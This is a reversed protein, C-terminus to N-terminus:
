ARRFTADSRNLDFRSYDSQSSTAHSESPAGGGRSRERCASTRQKQPCSPFLSVSYPEPQRGAFKHWRRPRSPRYGVTESVRSWTRRQLHWSRTGGLPVFNLYGVAPGPDGVRAPIARTPTTSRHTPTCNCDSDGPSPMSNSGGKALGPRFPPAGARM